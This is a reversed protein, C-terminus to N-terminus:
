RSAKFGKLLALKSLTAEEKSAVENCNKVKVDDKRLNIATEKNITCNSIKLYHLWLQFDKEKFKVDTLDSKKIKLGVEKFLNRNLRVSIEELSTNKLFSDSITVNDFYAEKLNANEMSVYEFKVNSIIASPAKLNDLNVPKANYGKIKLNELCLGKLEVGDRAAKELAEVVNEAQAAFLPKGESNRLVIVGSNKESSKNKNKFKDFLSM